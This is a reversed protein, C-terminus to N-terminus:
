RASPELRVLRRVWLLGIVQFGITAILLTRGFPHEILLTLSERGFAYFFAALLYPIALLIWGSLRAQATLSRIKQELRFRSRLTMGVNRLVETLEGGLEWKLSLATAFLRVGEGPVVVHLAELADAAPEGMRLRTLLVRFETAIPDKMETAVLTMAEPTNFGSRLGSVILDVGDALQREFRRVRRMRRARLWLLPLAAALPLAALAIPLSTTISYALVSGALGATFLLALVAAGNGGHGAQRALLALRPFAGRYHASGPTSEKLLPRPGDERASAGGAIRELREDEIARARSARLSRASLLLLIALVAVLALLLVLPDAEEISRLADRIDM